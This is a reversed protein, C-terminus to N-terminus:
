LPYVKLKLATVVREQVISAEADGHVTQSLVLLDDGATQPDFGFKNFIKTLVDNTAALSVLGSGCVEYAIKREAFWKQDPSAFLTHVREYRSIAAATKTRLTIFSYIPHGVFATAISGLIGGVFGVVAQQL